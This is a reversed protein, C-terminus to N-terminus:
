QKLDSLSVLQGLIDTIETLVLQLQASLIELLDVVGMDFKETQEPLSLLLGVLLGPLRSGDTELVLHHLVHPAISVSLSGLVSITILHDEVLWSLDDLTFRFYWAKM